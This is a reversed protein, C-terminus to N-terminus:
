VHQQVVNHFSLQWLSMIKNFCYDAETTVFLHWKKVFNLHLNTVFVTSFTGRKCACLCSTTFTVPRDRRRHRKAGSQAVRWDFAAESLWRRAGEGSLCLGTNGVGQLWCLQPRPQKSTVSQSRHFGSGRAATVWGDWPSPSINQHACQAASFHLLRRFNCPYRAVDGTETGHRLLVSWKNQHRHGHIHPPYFRRTQTDLFLHMQM